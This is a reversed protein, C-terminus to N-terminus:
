VYKNINKVRFYNKKPLIGSKPNVIIYIFIFITLYRAFFYLNPLFTSRPAIFFYQVFFMSFIFILKKRFYLKNFYSILFSFLIAGIIIGLMGFEYIEAIFSTGLSAGVFYYDPNVVYTLQHGLASRSNLVELSQGSPYLWSILPDLLYPYNNIQNVVDNYQIYYSLVYMSQSQSTLFTLVTKFLNNEVDAKVRIFAIYQLLLIVVFLTIFARIMNIKKNYINTYYWFLFLFSVAFMARLGMLLNPIFTILYILGFIYFSRISPKGGLLMMFGLQFFVSSIKLYTPIDIFVNEVYIDTFSRGLLAMFELIGRYLVLPLFLIMLYRGIRILNFDTSIENNFKIKEEKSYKDFKVYCHTLIFTFITYIYLTKQVTIETLIPYIAADPIRYDMNLFYDLFFRQFNFLGLCLLFISFLSTFGYRKWIITLSMIYVIFLQIELFHSFERNQFVSGFVIFYELVLILYFIFIVINYLGKM